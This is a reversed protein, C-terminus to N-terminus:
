DGRDFEEDESLSLLIQCLLLEVLVPPTGMCLFKHLDSHNFLM